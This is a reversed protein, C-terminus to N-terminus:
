YNIMITQKLTEGNGLDIVMYYAGKNVKKAGLARLNNSKGDWGNKGKYVLSGWRDYIYLQYKPYLYEINGINYTDNIGDDNPTFANPIFLNSQVTFILEDTCQELNTYNIINGDRDIIAVTISVYYTQGEEWNESPLYTTTNGLNVHNLIDNGGPTTGITIYYNIIDDASLFAVINEWTINASGVVATAENIPSTINVCDLTCGADGADTISWADDQILRERAIRGICYKSNGGSFPVGNDHLNDEWGILLSDYNEVSLTVGNFMDTANILSQIDWSGLDQNFATANKFMYRMETVKSTVWNNVPQNFNIAGQFTSWMNEVNSTDWHTIGESDTWTNVEQNFNPCDNFMSKMDVVNSTIWNNIPQNFDTNAVIAALDTVHSVDWNNLPQNFSSHTITTTYDDGLFLGRMNTITNTDWHNFHDGSGLNNCRYFMYSMDTVGSLDPADTALVILNSCGAFARSMSSWHIAGWQIISKLKDRNEQASDYFYIRPFMGYISVNYDGAQTYSHTPSVSTSIHDIGSNDGWNIYYDYTESTFTPMTISENDNEVHWTTVFDYEPNIITITMTVEEDSNCQNEDPTFTYTTTQQNNPEPSWTGTIGNTSETPLTFNEGVQFPGLTNFSPTVQDQFTITFQSQNTCTGNDAYIYITQSTSSIAIEDGSNLQTGTGNEGTYYSGNNEPLIYATCTTIDEITTIEPLPNITVDFQTENSCTGDTAYIYITQSTTITDGANFQTGGGDTATYYAGNTLSPLTYSDCETVSNLTDVAPLPNISVQFPWDNTCGTVTDEAYVHITQSSTITLDEPTVLPTDINGNNDSYYTGHTLPQLRYSDCVPAPSPLHDVLPLTNVTVTLIYVDYCLNNPTFTYEFNVGNVDSGTLSWSGDVGNDSTTPLAAIVDEGECFTDQLNNFVPVYNGSSDPGADNITWNYNNTLDDHATANGYHLGAAGLTIGNPITENSDLTDWGELTATYNCVSMATNDLMNYAGVSPELSSIDWDGLNQNFNTANAFMSSFSTVNSVSWSNLPQNFDSYYGETDFMLSMDIVNSVNWNNINKNFKSASQFMSSMNTVNSTDWYTGNNNSWTNIDQNFVNCRGFMVEMNTVNTTVWNNLPQNFSQCESFLGAMNTVNSVNWDNINENFDSCASFMGSMDTVDSLDPIDTANIHLNTCGKFANHMSSWHISGWQDVSLLKDRNNQYNTISTDGFNIINNSNTNARVIKVVYDGPTSYQHSIYTANGANGPTGDGWDTVHYYAGSFPITITENATEIHWKTIFAENSSIPITTFTTEACNTGGTSVTVYYTTNIDLNNPLNLSTVNGVDQNYINTAGSSTGISVHYGTAGSIASWTLNTSVPINTAGDTPTTLTTCNPNVVTTFSTNIPLCYTQSNTTEIIVNYHTSYDYNAYSYSTAPGNNHQNLIVTNTDLNKISILYTAGIRNSNRQLLTTGYPTWQIVTNLPVDIAGDNPTPTMFEPCTATSGTGSSETTFNFELADCVLDPQGNNITYAQIKVYYHTNYNWTQSYHKVTLDNVNAVDNSGYSTGIEIKYLNTNSTDVWYIIQNISINSSGSSPIPNYPCDLPPISNFAFLNVFSFVTLLLVLHQTYKKM